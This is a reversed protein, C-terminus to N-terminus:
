GQRDKEEERCGRDVRSAARLRGQTDGEFTKPKLWLGDLEQEGAAGHEGQVVHVVLMEKESEACTMKEPAQDIFWLVILIASDVSDKEFNGGAMDDGTSCPARVIVALVEPGKAM